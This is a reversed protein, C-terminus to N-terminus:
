ENEIKEKFKIFFKTGEDVRSEIEIRAGLTELQSKVLYLGLGKSNQHNHFRQYLGFVRDKHRKLNIGIGNDEFELQIENGIRKSHIKIELNRTPSSYKLANTFLNLFISELYVPNFFVNPALSFDYKIKPNNEKILNKTQTFVKQFITEFQIEEQAISNKDKIILIKILDEVTENLHNTSTKFGFLIEKLTEDQVVIDETLNLLGILNSLPARLNHSTIYAFQRIDSINQTLERILQEKEQEEKKKLTIDREIAIWHTFWGKENAIPVITFNVWFEEGNKRYNILEVECSEWNELALRLKDLTKRSTKPGQLIRPTEGIVEEKTYGTMKTFADNVYIIRPGPLDFPEAETILISDTANTIVSELLKLRHEEVKKKTIDTALVIESKIGNFEIVNSQIEVEFIEGSKKKHRFEGTFFTSPNKKSFQVADELRIIDEKPRIDKITMSLFEERGFGYNRIAAENVDLFHFNDMDYVWMPTPSFHFLNRYKEESEELQISIRKREISYSISKALLPASLEDKLLYDSIGLSLAKIGFHKDSYGTLVIIPIHDVLQIIQTLLEEGTSDPLSLDLLIIDFDEDGILLQKTETLTNTRTILPTGVEEKLFEEILIYDGTNDEVILIHLHKGRLTM